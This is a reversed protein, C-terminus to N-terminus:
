RALVLRVGTAASSPRRSGAVGSVSPAATAAVEPSHGRHVACCITFSARLWPAPRCRRRDWQCGPRTARRIVTSIKDPPREALSSRRQNRWRRHSALEEAVFAVATDSIHRPGTGSGQCAARTNRSRDGVQHAVRFRVALRDPFIRATPSRCTATPTVACGRRWWLSRAASISEPSRRSGVVAEADDPAARALQAAGCPRVARSRMSAQGPAPSRGAAALSVPSAPLQLVVAERALMRSSPFRVPGRKAGQRSVNLDAERAQAAALRRALLRRAQLRCGRPSCFMLSTIMCASSPGSSGRRM